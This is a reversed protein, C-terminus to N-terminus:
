LNLFESLRGWLLNPLMIELLPVPLLNGHIFSSLLIRRLGKCQCLSFLSNQTLGALQRSIIDLQGRGLLYFLTRSTIANLHLMQGYLLTIFCNTGYTGFTLLPFKIDGSLRGYRTNRLWNRHRTALSNIYTLM